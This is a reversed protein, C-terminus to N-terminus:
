SECPASGNQKKALWPYVSPYVLGSSEKTAMLKSHVAKVDAYLRLTQRNM